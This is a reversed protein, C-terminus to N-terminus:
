LIYLFYSCFLRRIHHCSAFEIGKTSTHLDYYYLKIWIRNHAVFAKVFKSFYIIKNSRHRTGTAKTGHWLRCHFYLLKALIQYYIDNQQTPTYIDTASLSKREITTHGVHTPLEASRSEFRTSTRIQYQNSHTKSM